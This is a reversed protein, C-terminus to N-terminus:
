SGNKGRKKESYMNQDATRLLSDMSDGDTPFHAWGISTGISIGYQKIQMPKCITAKVKNVIVEIGEVSTNPECVIVFEDGGIRACLDGNRIINLLRKSVIKLVEDGMDHGYNDNVPKFNNLDLFLIYFQKDDRISTSIADDIKQEMLRRTPLRTLPDHLADFELNLRQKVQHSIDRMTGVFKTQGDQEYRAISLFAYFLTGSKKRAIVERGKGIISAKGTDIYNSLSTDHHSADDSDMLCKVNKGILEGREYEFLAETTQNIDEITGTRDIVVLSDLIANFIAQKEAAADENLRNAFDLEENSEQLHTILLERDTVDRGVGLIYPENKADYFRIKTMEIIRKEGNPFDVEEVNESRGDSFAKKDNELFVSADQESYSEFTTFGIVKDRMEIPYLDLFRSNAHAIKYHKDKAFILDQNNETILKLLQNSDELETIDRGIGMVFKKNGLELATLSVLCPFTSGDLRSHQWQFIQPGEDFAKQIREMAMEESSRGCPQCKPSLDSPKLNLFNNENEVGHMEIAAQNCEIFRGTELDIISLADASVDFLKKYKDREFVVRQYEKQLRIYKEEISDKKHLLM